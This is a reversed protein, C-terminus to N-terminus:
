LKKVTNHYLLALRYFPEHHEFTFMNTQNLIIVDNIAIKALLVKLEFHNLGPSFIYEAFAVVGKCVFPSWQRDTVRNWNLM